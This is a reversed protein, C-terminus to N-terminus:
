GLLLVILEKVLSQEIITVSARPSPQDGVANVWDERVVNLVGVYM